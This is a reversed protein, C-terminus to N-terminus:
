GREQMLVQFVPRGKRKAIVDISFFHSSHFKKQGNQSNKTVRLPPPDVWKCFNGYCSVNKLKRSQDNAMSTM